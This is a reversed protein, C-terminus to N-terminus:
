INCNEKIIKLSNPYKEITRDAYSNGDTKKVDNKLWYRYKELM